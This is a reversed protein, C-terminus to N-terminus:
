KEARGRAHELSDLTQRVARQTSDLALAHQLYTRAEGTKQATLMARGALVFVAVTDGASATAVAAAKEAEDVRGSQAYANSLRALNEASPVESNAAVELYRLAEKGRGADVLTNGLAWLLELDASGMREVYPIAEAARGDAILARAVGDTAGVDTSDIRLVRRYSDIAAPWQHKIADILALSRWAMTSSSDVAIAQRFMASADGFSQPGRQLYWVGVGIYGRPNDPAKAIVDRYLTEQSRYTLGRMASVAVFLAAIAAFATRELMLGRAFRRAFREVGIALLVFVAASALYIRREAAIETKIPVVSSSPALILFFWAGIFGLWMWRRKTFAVITGAACAGLVLLGPIARAFAVPREGYDFTLGSPWVLLRLYRAIAWAQTYFYQYWPVGLGFGVSQSRAGFVLSLLVIVGTAWLAVYLRRRVQWLERWSEARFTRDYLMVVLPATIMVEKSAMGLACAVVAAISWRRQSAAGDTEWARLSAYLTAAYCLSVILETRQIVYDVAETQIPHVLWVLTAFGAVRAADVQDSLEDDDDITRRIIGFLLLGCALHFLINAAHYGVTKDPGNPDPAQDVQLADNIAHNLALTVNVVPRGAVATQSPPLLVAPSLSQVTPNQQIAPLDDYEFPARIAPAYAAVAGVVFVAIWGLRSRKQMLVSGTFKPRATENPEGHRLWFSFPRGKAPGAM